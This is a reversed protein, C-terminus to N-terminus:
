LVACTIKRSRRYASTESLMVVPGFDVAGPTRVESPMRKASEEACAILSVSCDTMGAM